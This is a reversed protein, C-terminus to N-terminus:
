SSESETKLARRILKTDFSSELQDDSSIALKKKDFDMLMTNHLLTNGCPMMTFNIQDRQTM